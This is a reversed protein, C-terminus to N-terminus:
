RNENRMLTLVHMLTKTGDVVEFCVCSLVNVKYAAVGSICSKVIFINYRNFQM